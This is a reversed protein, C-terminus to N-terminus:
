KIQGIEVVYVFTSHVTLAQTVRAVCLPECLAFISGGNPRLGINKAAYAGASLAVATMTSYDNNNINIDTCVSEFLATIIRGISAKDDHNFASALLPILKSVKDTYRVIGKERLTVREKLQAGTQKYSSPLRGAIVLSTNSPFKAIEILNSPTSSHDQFLIKRHMVAYTDTPGVLVGQDIHEADYAIKILETTTLDYSFYKKLALTLYAYFTASSALGYGIPVSSESSICINDPYLGHKHYMRLVASVEESFNSLISVGNDPNPSIAVSTSLSDIPITVAKGGYLGLGEGGLCIRTGLTFTKALYKNM